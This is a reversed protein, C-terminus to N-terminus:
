IYRTNFDEFNLLSIIYMYVTTYDYLKKDSVIKEKNKKLM